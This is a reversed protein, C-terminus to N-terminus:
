PCEPELNDIRMKLIEIEKKLEEIEKSCKKIRGLALIGMGSAHATACCCILFIALLKSMM